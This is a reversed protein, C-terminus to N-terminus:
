YKTWGKATIVVEVRDPTLMWLKEFCKDPISDWILSLAEVLKKKTKETGQM